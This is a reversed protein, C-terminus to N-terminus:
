APSIKSSKSVVNSLGLLLYEHEWKFNNLCGLSHFPSSLHDVFTYGPSVTHKNSPKYYDFLNSKGQAWPLKCSFSFSLSTLLYKSNCTFM